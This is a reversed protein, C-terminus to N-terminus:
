IGKEGAQPRGARGLKAEDLGAEDCRAGLTSKIFSPPLESPHVSIRSLDQEVSDLASKMSELARRRVGDQLAAGVIDDALAWQAIGANLQEMPNRPPIRVLRHGNWMLGGAGAQIQGIIIAKPGFIEDSIEAARATLRITAIQAAEDIDLVEATIQSIFPNNSYPDYIDGKVFVYSATTTSLGTLYSQGGSFSHFFVGAVPNGGDWGDRSRFEVTLGTGSPPLEAALLGPLDRRHLPRLQIVTDFYPQPSRWVRNSDLWGLYRMNAANLGPGRRGFDDDLGYFVNAASM